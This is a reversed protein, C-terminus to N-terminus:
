VPPDPWLSSYLVARWDMYWYWIPMATGTSSNKVTNMKAINGNEQKLHGLNDLMEIVKINIGKKMDMHFYAQSIYQM